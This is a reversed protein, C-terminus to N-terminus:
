NGCKNRRLTIFYLNKLDAITKQKNHNRYPHYGSLEVQTIIYPYIELLGELVRWFASSDNLYRRLLPRLSGEKESAISVGVRPQSLM